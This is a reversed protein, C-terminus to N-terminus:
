EGDESSNNDPNYITNRARRRIEASEEATMKEDKETSDFDKKFENGYKENLIKFDYAMQKKLENSIRKNEELLEEQNNYYKIIDDDKIINNAKQNKIKNVYISKISNIFIKSLLYTYYEDPDYIPTKYIGVPQFFLDGEIVPAKFFYFEIKELLDIFEDSTLLVNLVDDINNYDIASIAEDTLGLYGLSTYEEIKNDTYGLMFAVPVGFFSSSKDLFEIDPTRENNEYYSIAGRSVELEKALQTQSLGASERLHKLRIGFEEAVNGFM